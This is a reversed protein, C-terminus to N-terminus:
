RARLVIVEQALAGHSGGLRYSDGLRSRTFHLCTHLLLDKRRPRPIDTV